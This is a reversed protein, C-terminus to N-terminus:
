IALQVIEPTLGYGFQFRNPVMYQVDAFGLRRLQRVVLATSTAGDADFDGVVLIRGHARHVLLLEVAQAVGDLQSVPILQDLSLKLEADSAVGRTAYVRRLLPHLQESLAVDPVIRRRIERIM